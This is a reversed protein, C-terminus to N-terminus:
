RRSRTYRYLVILILGVAGGVLIPTWLRDMLSKPEEAIRAFTLTTLWKRFEPQWRDFAEPSATFSLTIQQRATPAHVDLSVRQKAPPKPTTTRIAVICEVQQTGLKELHIDRLQHELGNAEGHKRWLERLTAAYDDAVHWEDRQEFVYLWPSSFDGALWGDVPGVGYYQRPAALRLVPPADPDDGIRVAEGPAVQRWGSPLEIQFTRNYNRFTETAAPQQQATAPRVLLAPTLLAVALAAVTRVRM